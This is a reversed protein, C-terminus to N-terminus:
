HDCISSPSTTFGDEQSDFKGKGELFLILEDATMNSASCTYFRTQEGFRELIEGRLMEKTYTKGSAVMMHMVDHGHVQNEQRDNSM